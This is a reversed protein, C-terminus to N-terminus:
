NAAACPVGRLNAGVEPYFADLLDRYTEYIARALSPDLEDIWQDKKGSRFHHRDDVVGRSRGGSLKEFTQTAIADVPDRGLLSGLEARALEADNVLDEMRVTRIRRDAFNWRRLAFLPGVAAQHFDARELFTWTAAMGAARDLGRLVQRQQALAPWRDSRHSHLHSYYASVVIDLPNRIVHLTRCPEHNLWEACSVVCSEYLSNTFFVIDFQQGPPTRCSSELSGYLKRDFQGCFGRLIEGLWTTACKHHSLLIAPTNTTM